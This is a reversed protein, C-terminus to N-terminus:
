SLITRKFVSSSVQRELEKVTYKEQKTLYMYFLSEEEIKCRSMLILHQTWSIDALLSSTIDKIEFQTMALSVIKDKENEAVQLQIMASSVIASDKYTEYFQRMRYLGRRNFGKLEPHENQIFQALEEVTKDGWQAKGVKQSIYSGVNWYLNILETNIAKFSSQRPRQILEIVEVFNTNKSPKYM